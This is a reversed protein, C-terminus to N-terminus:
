NTIYITSEKICEELTDFIDNKWSQERIEKWTYKKM